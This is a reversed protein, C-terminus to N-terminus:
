EVTKPPSYTIVIQVDTARAFLIPILVPRAEDENLVVSKKATFGKIPIIIIKLSRVAFRRVVLNRILICVQLRM